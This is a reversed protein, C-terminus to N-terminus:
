SRELGYSQSFTAKTAAPEELLLRGQLLTTRTTCLATILLFAQTHKRRDSILNERREKAWVPVPSKEVNMIRNHCLVSLNTPNKQKLNKKKKKQRTFDKGAHTM